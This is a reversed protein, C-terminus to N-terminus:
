GQRYINGDDDILLHRTQTGAPATPLDSIKLGDSLSIVLLRGRGDTRRSDINNVNDYAGVRMYEGSGSDEIYYIVKPAGNDNNHEVRSM